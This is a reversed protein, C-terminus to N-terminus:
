GTEIGGLGHLKVAVIQAARNEVADGIGHCARHVVVVALEDAIVARVLLIVPVHALFPALLLQLGSVLEHNTHADRAADEGRRLPQRHVRQRSSKSTSRKADGRSLGKLDV